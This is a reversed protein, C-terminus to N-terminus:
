PANTRTTDAGGANSPPAVVVVPGDDRWFTTPLPVLWTGQPLPALASPTGSVSDGTPAGGIATLDIFGPRHKAHAILWMGQSAVPPGPAPLPNVRRALPPDPPFEPQTCLRNVKDPPTAIMMTVHGTEKNPGDAARHRRWTVWVEFYPNPCKWNIEIPWSRPADDPSAGHAIGLSAEIARIVGERLVPEVDGYYGVWYGTGQGTFGPQDLWAGSANQTRGFWDQELRIDLTGQPITVGASAPSVAWPIASIPTGDRLQALATNRVAVEAPNTPNLTNELLTLLPGKTLTYPMPM